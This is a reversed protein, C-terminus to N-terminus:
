SSTATATLRAPSVVEPEVGVGERYVVSGGLSAALGLLALAAIALARVLPTAGAAYGIRAFVSIGM